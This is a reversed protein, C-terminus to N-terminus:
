RHEMFQKVETSILQKIDPAYDKWQTLSLIQTLAHEKSDQDIWAANFVILNGDEDKRLIVALAYICGISKRMWRIVNEWRDNVFNDAFSFTREERKLSHNDFSYLEGQFVGLFKKRV